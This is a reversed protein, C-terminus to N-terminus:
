AAMKGYRFRFGFDIFIPLANIAEIPGVSALMTAVFARVTVCRFNRPNHNISWILSGAGSITWQWGSRWRRTRQM